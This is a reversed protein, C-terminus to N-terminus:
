LRAGRENPPLGPPLPSHDRRLPSRAPPRPDSNLGKRKATPAKPAAMAEALRSKMLNVPIAFGIGMYGGSKSFIATNMGVVLGDINVLPGGSNGPNIAADTQIFDEHDLIGMESRGKASVIGATVTQMLGFPNGIALVWDGVELSGSDGLPAHPLNGGDIKIIAVDTKSDAYFLQARVKKKDGLTVTIEDAGKIVHRNTFIYGRADFIFGSGIGQQKFRRNDEPIQFFRRFFPDSFFERFPHDELMPDLEPSQRATVIRVASVNVVAPKVTRAVARFAEQLGRLGSTPGNEAWSPLSSFSLIIALLGLVGPIRLGHTASGRMLLHGCRNLDGSM